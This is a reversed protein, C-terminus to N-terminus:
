VVVLLRRRRRRAVLKGLRHGGDRRAANRGLNLLDICRRGGRKAMM